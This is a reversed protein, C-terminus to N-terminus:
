SPYGPSCDMDKWSFMKRRDRGRVSRGLMKGIVPKCLGIDIVSTSNRKGNTDFHFDFLMALCHIQHTLIHNEYEVPLVKLIHFNVEAEMARLENFWEFCGQPGDASVSLNFLPPRLPYEISISVKAELKVVHETRDVRGLIMLFERAAHDEWPEEVIHSLNDTEQDICRKEDLDSESDLLLELDDEYKGSNQSKFKKSPTLSKSILSLSRSHELELSLNSMMKPDEPIAAQLALPLEGDERSNEVEWSTVSRRDLHPEVSGSVRRAAVPASSNLNIGSASWQQLSCLPSRSAWPVNKYDLLPWKLKTLSDLQEALAMQAKTRLRIRQLINQVRNQRRYLSLASLVDANKLTPGNANESCAHLPPVEPLIDMGALHQAWKYPRSAKEGFAVSDGVSLKATQHPLEVGTDNPFLNSLVNNDSGENSDEIGVCVVNLKVLYEFKLTILKLPKAEHDEEDYISLTIKLPHSQCVGPQGINDKVLNRKTRKRRRQADDDEDLADDDLRNNETNSSTSTEKNAQQQAFTQADKLSGVVELDIKEGFAERQGSLQSYLIYLPPPLLVAANHQKLKKTHLMGLQQQVPLSAKKLSKLHSPLSSLFKKRSAITAVLGKKHNELNERHKCLEKRQFLEFSLRKLMLDHEPDSALVKGKIEEPASSEFEEEGVMEVDPYRSKFDNCAKIAKLYHNKEYMLNHLQLMTLDVPAKAGETDAKM